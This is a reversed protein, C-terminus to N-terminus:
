LSLSENAAGPHKWPLPKTWLKREQSTINIKIWHLQKQNPGLDSEIELPYLHQVARRSIHGGPCIKILATRETIMEMIIATKWCSKQMEEKQVIVIQGSESNNRAM